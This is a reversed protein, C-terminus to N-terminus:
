NRLASLPNARDDTWVRGPVPNLPKWDTGLSMAEFVESSRTLALVESGTGGDTEIKTQAQRQQFIALDADQALQSIPKRLDYYRNSIHMVLVGDEALRDLYIQMAERTLLHIPVADSSYADIVLVDFTLDQRELVLRADGLYIPAEPTCSSLFSFLNPDQAIEIVKQDIEYFHWDQGPQAYCALSGVGLGVIGIAADNPLAAATVVQAMPSTPHYYSLPTPKGDTEAIRQMGHLTTGHNYLRLGDAERVIHHGFFSRDQLVINNSHKVVLGAGVSALVVSLPLWTNIPRLVIAACVLLGFSILNANKPPLGTALLGVMVCIGVFGLVVGRTVARRHGAADTGITLLVAAALATLPAELLSNFFVPAVISNFLGGIAGGISMILYFVTLGDVNPRSLYLMRHAKLAVAFLALCLIIAQPLKLIGGHGLTLTAALCFLSVVFLIDIVRDSLKPTNTFTLVFSFIYLSLPVVWVLPLSGVDTSIKTTVVLMLSSPVFAIFLWRLISKAGVAPRVDDETEDTKRDRAVSQKLTLMVLMLLGGLLIFGAAWGYGTVRAGFLPEAVLPFALLAVLSGINSAAYLFYPDDASPGGSKAYWSQILPANASLMAFPAGVGVAFIALTQLPLAVGEDFQWDAPVSLPLFTLAVAWVALHTLLQGRLPVYRSLLHAYLYGGILVTQFFLMATTWVAPAGGLLPLVLKAFLPQVFFLLSASLFITATFLIPVIKESLRTSGVITQDAM